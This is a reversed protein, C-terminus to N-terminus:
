DEEYLRLGRRAAARMYVPPVLNIEASYEMEDDDDDDDDMKNMTMPKQEAEKQGQKHAIKAAMLLSIAEDIAANMQENRQSREDATAINLATMQDVAEQHTQHCGGDVAQKTGVKVVAHGDCNEADMIVEYPM